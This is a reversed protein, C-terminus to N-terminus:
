DLSRLQSGRGSEIGCVVRILGCVRLVYLRVTVVAAVASTSCGIFGFLHALDSHGTMTAVAMVSMMVVVAVWLVIAVAKTASFSNDTM